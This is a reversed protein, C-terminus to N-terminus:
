PQLVPEEPEHFSEVQYVYVGADTERWASPNCGAKECLRELFDAPSPIHRWVQPLFTAFQSGVRLLVGDEHPRLIKLIEDPATVKVREPETLVSIEIRIELLEQPEVPPFRPDRLAAARANRMVSKWLECEPFINGICGRLLGAKTVTVFSARHARLTGPPDAPELQQLERLPNGMVRRALVLLCTRETPTLFGAGRGAVVGATPEDPKSLHEGIIGWRTLASTVLKGSGEFFHRRQMLPM